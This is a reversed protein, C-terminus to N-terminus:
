DDASLIKMRFLLGALIGGLVPAIIFLWLQSIAHAGAFVAPGISRAPNVSLGTVQLFPFHLLVLTLGIVLGAVRGTEAKQTVGLIVILFIATALVETLFASGTGFEGLYGAGWGNQGMGGATMDYGALKGQLILALLGAGAIGGIVQAIIYRVAEGAEMRGAVVMAVSVAPNIHCGSVPGIAYAMAMVSLGFALAIPLIGMPFAGPFGGIVIASCGLFILTATGILEAVLKKM